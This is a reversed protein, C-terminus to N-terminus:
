PWTGGQLSGGLYVRDSDIAYRKRADRLSLKSPPTSPRATGTSAPSAKSRTSPPSWSIAAGPRRRGGGPSRRLRPRGRAGRARRPPRRGDPLIPAPSVRPPPPGQIRDAGRQHRRGGSADGGQRRPGTRTSPRPWGSSSGPSPRWTSGATPRAADKAFEITQLGVLADSRGQEDSEGARLYDRVFGRAKWLASADDLSPVAAEAGVIWGSMALALRAETTSGPDAKALPALRPRLADPAQELDRLVEAIPGKWARALDPTLSKELDRLSEGLRRDNALDAEEKRLQDRVDTLVDPAVDETPFTRLRALLDAPRRSRRALSIELLKRRADLDRIARLLEACREREEPFDRAISEVEARADDYWDAQLYFRAVRQRENLSTRDVRGLLGTVIPKPVQSTAVQGLWFGDVGRYRIMHPGLDNIAQTM